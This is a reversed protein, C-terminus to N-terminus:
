TIRIMKKRHMASAPLLMITGISVMMVGITGPGLIDDTHKEPEREV